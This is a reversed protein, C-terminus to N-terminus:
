EWKGGEKWRGLQCRVAGKERTSRRDSYLFQGRNRGAEQGGSFGNQCLCQPSRLLTEEVWKGMRGDPIPENGPVAGTHLDM